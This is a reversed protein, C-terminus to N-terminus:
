SVDQVNLEALESLEIHGEYLAKGVIVADCGISNLIEIEDITSVGGSAILKIENFDSIIEKYLNIASGELMGDKSIDTCLFYSAGYNVYNSIFATIGQDSKEQWGNIAIKGGDVDAGIVFRDSGFESLWNQVRDPNKVALSGVIVQDVGAQFVDKLAEESKVGGGFEIILDTKNTIEEVIKLNKPYQEKAGDLDVIHLNKMGADEFQKAMEVPNKHYVKKTDYDGRTLRVCQGDILDIAPLIRM